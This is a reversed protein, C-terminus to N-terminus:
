GLMTGCKTIRHVSATFYRDIPRREGTISSGRCPMIMTIARRFTFLKDIVCAMALCDVVATQQASAKDFNNRILDRCARSEMVPVSKCCKKGGVTFLM